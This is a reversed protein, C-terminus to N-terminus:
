VFEKSKYIDWPNKSTNIVHTHIKPISWLRYLKVVFQLGKDRIEDWSHPVNICEEFHPVIKLDSSYM